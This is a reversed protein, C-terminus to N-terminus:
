REIASFGGASHALGCRFASPKNVCLVGGRDDLFRGHFTRIWGPVGHRTSSLGDRELASFGGASLSIGGRIASRTNVCLVGGRDELFRGLVLRIRASFGPACHSVVLRGGRRRLVRVRTPLFRGPLGRAIVVALFGSKFAAFGRRLVAHASAVVFREKPSGKPSM